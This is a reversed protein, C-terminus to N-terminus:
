KFVIKGRKLYPASTSEEGGVVITTFILRGLDDHLRGCKPCASLFISQPDGNGNAVFRVANISTFLVKGCGPEQCRIAVQREQCRM